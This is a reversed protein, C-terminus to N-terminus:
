RKIKKFCVNCYVKPNTPKFPLIFRTKCSVCTVETPDKRACKKKVEKDFNIHRNMKRFKSKKNMLQSM